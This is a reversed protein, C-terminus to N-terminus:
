PETGRYRPEQMIECGNVRGRCLDADLQVSHLRRLRYLVRARAQLQLAQVPKEVRKVRGLGAAHSHPQRDASRDDLRMASAHPGRWVWRMASDKLEGQGLRSLRGFSSGSAVDSLSM